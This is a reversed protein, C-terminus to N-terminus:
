TEREILEKELSLFKEEDDCLVIKFMLKRDTFFYQKGKIVSKNINDATHRHEGYSDYM